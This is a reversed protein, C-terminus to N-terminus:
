KALSITMRKVFSQIDEPPSFPSFFDEVLRAKFFNEDPTRFRSSIRVDDGEYIERGKYDFCVFRELSFPDVEINKEGDFITLKNLTAPFDLLGCVKVTSGLKRARCKFKQLM